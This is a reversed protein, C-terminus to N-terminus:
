IKKRSVSSFISSQIIYMGTQHVAQYDVASYPPPPQYLESHPYLNHHELHVGNM